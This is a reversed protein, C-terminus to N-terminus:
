RRAALAPLPRAISYPPLIGHQYGHRLELTTDRRREVEAVPQREPADVGEAAPPRGDLGAPPRGGLLPRPLQLRCPHLHEQATRHALVGVYQEFPAADHHDVTQGPRDLLDHRREHAPRELIGAKAKGAEFAGPDGEESLALHLTFLLL